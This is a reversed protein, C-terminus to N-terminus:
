VAHMNRNHNHETLHLWVAGSETSSFPDTLALLPSFRVKDTMTGPPCSTCEKYMGAPLSFRGPECNSCSSKGTGSSKKGSNCHKPGLSQM